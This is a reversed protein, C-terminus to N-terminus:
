SVITEHYHARYEFERSIFILYRVINVGSSVLSGFIALVFALKAIDNTLWFFMFRVASPLADAFNFPFISLLWLSALAFLINVGAELPRVPNRRGVAARALPPLLSIIMSGFFVIEEMLGFKSTFFGTNNVLHYTFFGM